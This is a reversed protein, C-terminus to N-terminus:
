LSKQLLITLNKGALVSKVFSMDSFRLIIIIKGFNNYEEMFKCYGNFFTEYSDTTEKFEPSM